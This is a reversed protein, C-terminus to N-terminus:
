PVPSGQPDSPRVALRDYFGQGHPEVVEAHARDIVAACAALVDAPAGNLAESALEAVLQASGPVVSGAPAPVLLRDVPLPEATAGLHGPAAGGPSAWPPPV